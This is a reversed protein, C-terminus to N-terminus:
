KLSSCMSRFMVQYDGIHDKLLDKLSKEFNDETDVVVVGWISEDSNRLPFALVQKAKFNIGRFVDYFERGIHMREMYTRINKSNDDKGEPYFKPITLGVLSDTQAFLSDHDERYCRDAVGNYSGGRVSTRFITMSGPLKSSAVRDSQQLYVTRARFPFNRLSLLFTHNRINDFLNGIIVHCIYPAWAKWGIKPKFLTLRTNYNDNALYQSLIHKLLMHTWKNLTTEDSIIYLYYYSLSMVVGMIALGIEVEYQAVFCDVPLDNKVEQLLWLLFTLVSGSILYLYTIVKKMVM